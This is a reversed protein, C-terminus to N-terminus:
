LLRLFRALGGRPEAAPVDFTIPYRRQPAHTGTVLDRIAELSGRLGARAVRANVVVTGHFTGTQPLTLVLAQEPGLGDKRHPSERFEWWALSTGEGSGQVACHYVAYKKQAGVEVGAEAVKKVGLSGKRDITFQVPEADRVQRPAIDVIHVGPPSELRLQVRAWTFRTAGAPQFTCVLEVAGGRVGDLEIVEAARRVILLRSGKLEEDAVKEAQGPGLEDDADPDPVLDADVLIEDDDM